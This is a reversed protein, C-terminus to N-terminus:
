SGTTVGDVKSDAVGAPQRATGEESFVDDWLLDPNLAVQDGEAIGGKVVVFSGNNPGVSVKRTTWSKEDTRVLCYHSGSREVISQIPVQLVDDQSDVFIRVKARQGPTLEAPPDVIRIEAGYEIPGGYWQRPYPFPNVKSVIGRVPLDPNVDLEVIVSNGVKVEKIKSDNIRTKVQMEKPNPLRIVVQNERIQAGDEIVVNNSKEFDNAYVVQGSSPALVRCKKTQDLYDDRRQQSLKLTFDAAKLNAKQKEIESEFESIMRQHTFENFVRLKTQAVHAARSAMDVFLKDAEVQIQTMFGKRLMRQSHLYTAEATKLESEAQFLESEFTERDVLFLGERYENLTNKAKDLESKAEIVAAEDTAVQIEQVTLNQQLAADDFQILFDGKEVVEGEEVIELIRMGNSLGLAKVECRIEVNNSSEIDGSETVFAEFDGRQVTHVLLASTDAETGTEDFFSSVFMFLMGAMSCVALAIVVKVLVGHRRRRAIHPSVTSTDVSSKEHSYTESSVDLSM